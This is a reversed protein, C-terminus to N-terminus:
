ITNTLNLLYQLENQKTKLGLYIIKIYIYIYINIYLHIFTCHNNTFRM